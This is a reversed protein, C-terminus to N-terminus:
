YEHSGREEAKCIVARITNGWIGTSVFVSVCPKVDSGHLEGIVFAPPLFHTVPIALNVGSMRRSSADHWEAGGGRDM